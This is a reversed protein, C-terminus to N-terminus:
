IESDLNNGSSVLATVAGNKYADNIFQHGDVRDGRIAIYLDGAHCDRSDTTIGTVRSDLMENTITQFMDIFNQPEPLTIRM